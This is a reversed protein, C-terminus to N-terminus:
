RPSGDLNHNRIWWEDYAEVDPDKSSSGGCDTCGVCLTVFGLIMVLLLVISKKM